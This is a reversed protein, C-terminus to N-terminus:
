KFIDYDGGFLEKMIKNYIIKYRVCSFYLQYRIRYKM